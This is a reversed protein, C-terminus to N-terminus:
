KSRWEKDKRTRHIKELKKQQTQLKLYTGEIKELFEPNNKTFYEFIAIWNEIRLESPKLKYSFKKQQALNNIKEKGIVKGFSDSISHKTQNYFYTVFDKFSNQYEEEIRPEIKEIRMLVVSVNPVPVFDESKFHHIITVKFNVGVLISMLSRSILHKAADEQFFLYTDTPPNKDFVLKRVIESSSRFPINSFVKYQSDLLPFELFDQNIIDLRQNEHFRDLLKTYL